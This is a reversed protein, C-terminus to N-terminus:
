QNTRRELQFSEERIEIGNLLSKGSHPHFTIDLSEQAQIGTFTKFLAKRPQGAEAILDFAELQTKGQIAIDFVRDGPQLPQPEAFHLTVTFKRSPVTPSKGLGLPFFNTCNERGEPGLFALAESTKGDRNTQFNFQLQAPDLGAERLTKLPISAELSYHSETFQIKPVIGSGPFRLTHKRQSDTLFIEFPPIEKPLPKAFVPRRAGIYLSQQDHALHLATQTQPLLQQPTPWEGPHLTGDLKPPTALEKTALPKLFDLQLTAKRIGKCGSAYLWPRSTATVPTRDGNFNYPGGGEDYEIEMPIHLGPQRAIPWIGPLFAETKTGPLKPYGLAEHRSTPRPFGLWLDGQEDRRDGPAGLNLTAQRVRTDVDRDFFIAWDEQLRRRAPAMTLTTRFPFNCVCRAKSESAILLGQSNLTTPGCGASIGVFTRLGSDDQFDYIGLVKAAGSRKVVSTASFDFGGCTGTGTRFIRPGPELTLPHLRPQNAIDPDIGKPWGAVVKVRPLQGYEGTLIEPKSASPLSSDLRINAWGNNLGSATHDCFLYQRQIREGRKGDYSYLIAAFGFTPDPCPVQLTDTPKAHLRLVKGSHLGYREKPPRFDLFIEWGDQPTISPDQTQLQITVQGKGPILQLAGSHETDIPLEWTRPKELAIDAPATYPAYVETQRGTRADLLIAGPGKGQFYGEQLHLYVHQDNVRISRRHTDRLQKSWVKETHFLLDESHTLDPSRPPIPRTWLVTGNYADIASLNDEGMVFYRGYAALPRQHGNKNDTVQQSNPGGYWLPRLPWQVLHDLQTPSDWDHADPLKGRIITNGSSQAEKGSLSAQTKQFAAQGEPTYTLIGGCPRLLRFLNQPDPTSGTALIIANAFYDPLNRPDTYGPIHIKSGYLTTTNLLQRRLAQLDTGKPPLLVVKLDTHTALSLCTTAQSDGLVLAYGKDMGANRLQQILPPRQIDPDQKALKQRTPAATKGFCHVTGNDTTVLLHGDAVALGYAKGNVPARWLEKGALDTAQVYGNHGAVLHQGAQVLSYANRSIPKGEGVLIQTQGPEHHQVTDTPRPPFTTLNRINYHHFQIREGTRDDCKMLLIKNNRHKYLTRFTKDEAFLWTGGRGAQPNAFLLKGTQRDIGATSNYGNPILLVENTIALAGQPTLGYYGFDGDHVGHGMNSRNEVTLLTNYNVGAYGSTDNCWLTKGTAADLAYVFIGETAWIGSALYATGGDVLVGTRVPWRSVMRGNGVALETSPAANFKWVLNGSAAELCYAHGDDSGFYVRGDEIQPAIRIPGGTTFQWVLLGTEIDLARVTDDSTSGFCVIGNAIVPQPAYDFDLRNLLLYHPPPWAPSPPQLSQYTWSGQLPFPLTETTIASRRTDHKYAPWDAAQLSTGLLLVLLFAPKTKM